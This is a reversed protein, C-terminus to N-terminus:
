SRGASSAPATAKTDFDSKPGSESATTRPQPKSAGMRLPITGTITTPTGPQSTIHLTGATTDLRDHMNHLGSGHPTHTADFGPGSDTVTFELRGADDSLAITIPPKAHKMANTVAESISYFAALEIDPSYRDTTGTVTIDVPATTAMTRIATDLGESELIAPYLGSALAHIEDIAAQAEDALTTLLEATRTSGEDHATRAALSLAVKLGVVDQVAGEQLQRELRRLETDQADVLRRRSSALEHATRELDTDLRVKRIVLAASGALDDALRLEAPRLPTGAAPEVTLAGLVDGDHEIPVVVGDLDDLTNSTTTPAEPESAALVLGDDTTLWVQAREAGTGAQLQTAMRTLLGAEEEANPLSRTLESLVEYPAARKGYVLRNAVQQARVRVPEFLIAVITTAVVALVVDSGGILSGVTGVVVAYVVTIFVAVLGFVISRSIVVDIDFLNYRLIAVGIAMVGLAGLAGSLISMADATEPYASEVLGSATLLVTALGGIVFVWKMQQREVDRAKLYRVVVAVLMFAIFSLEFVQFATDPIWTWLGVPNELITTGAASEITGEHFTRGVLLVAGVTVFGVVARGWRPGITRGTPYLVLALPITVFAATEAVGQAWMFWATPEIAGNTAAAGAAVMAVHLSTLVLGWGVGIAWGFGHRPYRALIVAGVVLASLFILADVHMEFRMYQYMEPGARGIIDRMAAEAGTRGTVIFAAVNAAIEVAMLVSAATWIGIRWRPTATTM